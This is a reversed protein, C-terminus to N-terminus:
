EVYHFVLVLNVVLSKLKVGLRVLKFFTVHFAQNSASDSLNVLNKTSSTLSWRLCHSCSCFFCYSLEFREINSNYLTYCSVRTYLYRYGIISIHIHIYIYLHKYIYLKAKCIQSYNRCMPFDLGRIKRNGATPYLLYFVKALRLIPLIERYSKLFNPFIRFGNWSINATNYLLYFLEMCRTKYPCIHPNGLVPAGFWGNWNLKWWLGDWKPRNTSAGM